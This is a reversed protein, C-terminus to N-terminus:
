ESEEGTRATNSSEFEQANLGLEARVDVPGRYIQKVATKATESLQPDSDKLLRELHRLYQVTMRAIRVFDGPAASTFKNLRYFDCGNAYEYIAASMSEDLQKITSELGAMVEQERAHEVVRKAQRLLEQIPRLVYKPYTDRPRGQHITAAVLASLAQPTINEFIGEYLM